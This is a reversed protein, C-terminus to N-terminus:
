CKQQIKVLCDRWPAYSMKKDRVTLIQDGLDPDFAKWKGNTRKYDIVYYYSNRTEIAGETVEMLSRWKNLLKQTSWLVSAGNDGSCILDADDVFAFGVLKYVQRSLCMCFSDCYGQKRLIEFVISSLFTWVVPGAANGQLVGQPANKWKKYSDGGYTTSSDGYATRVRHVMQQITEFMVHIKQKPIGLRLLALAAATHVIRDYCGTLDSMSLSWCTREYQRCDATLRRNLAHDRCDRGPRSYQEPALQNHKLALSIAQRQLTKNCQNYETDLIGLTRQKNIDYNM